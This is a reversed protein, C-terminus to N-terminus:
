ELTKSTVLEDYVGKRELYEVKNIKYCLLSDTNEYYIIIYWM